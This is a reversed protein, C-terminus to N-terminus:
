RRLTIYGNRTKKGTGFEVRYFYTGNPLEKGNQDAGKFVRDNNDYDKIEFVPSGWRNFITVKNTKTDPIIEIFELYLSENM